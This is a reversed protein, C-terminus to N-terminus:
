MKLGGNKRPLPGLIASRTKRAPMPVSSAIGAYCRVVPSRQVADMLSGALISCMAAHNGLKSSQELMLLANVGIVRGCGCYM